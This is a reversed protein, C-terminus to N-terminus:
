SLLRRVAADVHIQTTDLLPIGSATNDRLILPLETGALIVAEVQEQERMRQIIALLRERTEPLFVGVLLENVYKDHIFAQEDASPAVLAIGQKVFVEPYFSAQMTFRTGLLAAKAIGGAQVAACTAEVISILPLSSRAQVEAFVIHPTNASIIGFDAGGGALRQVGEVFYDALKGLEGDGVLRLGKNVDLSHILISPAANDGTQKQYAAILRRYYDITSEPGIGGIVGVTKM